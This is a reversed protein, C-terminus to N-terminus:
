QAIFQFLLIWVEVNNLDRYEACPKFDLKTQLLISCPAVAFEHKKTECHSLLEAYVLPLNETHSTNHRWVM